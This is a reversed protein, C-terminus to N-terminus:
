AVFTAFAKDAFDGLCEGALFWEGVHLTALAEAEMLVEEQLLSDVGPLSREETSLARHSM